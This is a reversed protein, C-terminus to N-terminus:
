YPWPYTHVGAKLIYHRLTFGGILVSLAGLMAITASYTGFFMWGGIVAPVILGIGVFGIIFINNKKLIGMGIQAEVPGNKFTEVYSISLLIVLVTLGFIAGWFTRLMNDSMDAGNFLVLISFGASFSTLFMQAPLGPGHWLPVSNFASLLGGSIIPFLVGAIIALSGTIVQISALFDTLGGLNIWDKMLPLAFLFGGGIVLAVLIVDWSIGSHKWKSLSRWAVLPRMLEFLVLVVGAIAMSVISSLIATLAITENLGLFFMVVGITVLAGSLGGFFLYIALPWEYAEQVVYERDGVKVNHSM